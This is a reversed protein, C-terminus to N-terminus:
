AKDEVKIIAWQESPLEVIVTQVIKEAVTCDIEILQGGIKSRM